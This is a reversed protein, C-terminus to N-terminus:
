GLAEVLAVIVGVGGIVIGALIILSRHLEARLGAMETRVEAMEARFEGRFTQLEARLIDATVVTSTADEVVEVAAAALPEAMGNERLKQVAERPNFTLAM